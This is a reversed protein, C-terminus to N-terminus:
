PLDPARSRKEVPSRLGVQALIRFCADPNDQRLLSIADVEIEPPVRRRKLSQDLFRVAETARAAPLRATLTMHFRFDEFVYPYGWRDLHGIQRATLPQALRRNREADFM